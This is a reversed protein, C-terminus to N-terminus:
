QSRVAASRGEEIRHAAVGLDQLYNLRLTQGDVLMLELSQPTSQDEGPATTSLVSVRLINAFLVSRSGFAGRYTLGNRCLVLRVPLITLGFLILPVGLLAGVSGVVIAGGSPTPMGQVLDFTMGLAFLALTSGAGFLILATHGTAGFRAVEEGLEAATHGHTRVPRPPM